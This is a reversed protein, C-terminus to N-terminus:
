TLGVMYAVWREVAEGKVRYNFVGSGSGDRGTGEWYVRTDKFGAELMLDRLEALSWMRWDYSFVRNRKRGGKPKFHISFRARNSIPDFSEQEWYYTLGSIKRSEVSPKGCLPGGFCDVMFIGGARLSQRVAKFYRLLTERSQFVFYSYNFACVIDAKVTSKSLVDQEVASVRRKESESLASFYNQAGYALPEPDIDMGIARNESGLKVWECCLSFTGCFDERMTRPEGHTLERYLRRMFRVDHHTSQVAEAYAAYKDFAASARSKTAKSLKLQFTDDNLASLESLDRASPAKARITHSASKTNM